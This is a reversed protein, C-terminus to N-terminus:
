RENLFGEKFLYNYLIQATIKHGYATFHPDKKYYIKDPHRDERLIPLLDVYRIGAERFFNGLVKNAVFRDYKKQNKFNECHDVLFQWLKDDVQIKDPVILVVLKINEKEAWAKIKLFTEKTTMWQAEAGKSNTPFGKQFFEPYVPWPCRKKKQSSQPLFPNKVLGLQISKYRFFRYIRLRRLFKSGKLWLENEERDISRAKEIEGSSINRNRWPILYGNKVIHFHNVATDDGFDNGTYFEFFVIKPHYKQVMRRAMIFDQKLGFSEIGAKIVELKTKNELDSLYTEKQKVGHGFAFSDGVGLIKPKPSRPDHEYDRIGDSNASIKTKFELDSIYGQWAPNLIFGLESDNKFMGRPRLNIEYPPLDLIRMPIEALVLDAFVGITIIGLNAIINRFM